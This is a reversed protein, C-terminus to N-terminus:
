PLIFCFNARKKKHLTVTDRIVNANKHHIPTRFFYINIKNKKIDKQTQDGM